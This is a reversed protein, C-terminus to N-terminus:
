CIRPYFIVQVAIIINLLYFIVWFEIIQPLFESLGWFIIKLLYFMM